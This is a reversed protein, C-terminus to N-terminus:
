RVLRRFQDVVSRGRSSRNESAPMAMGLLFRAKDVIGPVYRVSALTLNRTTRNAGRYVTALREEEPSPLVGRSWLVFPHDHLGLREAAAEGADRVMPRAKWREALWTVEDVACGDFAEVVDRLTALRSAGTITAHMCAHVLTAEASLTHLEQDESAFVRADAWLDVSPVIFQHPGLVLTRHLDIEPGLESRLTVSKAFRQDFGPRLEPVSRTAGDAMCRDIVEDLRDAPVLVDADVWRRAEGWRWALEALAPGKLVRHPIGADDLTRVVALLVDEARLTHASWRADLEALEQTSEADLRLVGKGHLLAAMGTLRERVLLGQLSRWEDRTPSLSVSGTSSGALGHAAIATLLRDVSTV